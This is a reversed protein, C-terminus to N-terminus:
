RHIQELWEMYDRLIQDPGILRQRDYRLGATRKVDPQLFRRIFERRIAANLPDFLWRGLRTRSRPVFVIVRALTQHGDSPQASLLGYTTTRAFQATTFILNGAWDVVTMTVKPGAFRRTLRDRLSGGVVMFTAAIRRAMPHPDDVVPDGVLERDHSCRFHQLDFGNTSAIYWPAAVLLEFPRSAHLTSWDASEFTPFPYTARPKNFFFVHGAVEHTPYSCQRAWNPINAVGPIRVCKGEPNYEWGHLPCHLNEGSVTGHALNSGVHSCRGNLVVFRGNETRYGVFGDDKTLELRVPGRELQKVSALYHWSAPCDPFHYAGPASPTAIFTPTTTM